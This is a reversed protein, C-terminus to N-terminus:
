VGGAEESAWKIHKKKCYEKIARKMKITPEHHGNEWRNVTAFSVGIEKAFDEQSLLLTDRIEKIKEAYNIRM